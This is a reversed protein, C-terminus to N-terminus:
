GDGGCTYSGCICGCVDVDVPLVPVGPVFGAISGGGCRYSIESCRCVDVDVPLLLVGSVFGAFSEGGLDVPTDISCAEVVAASISCCGTASPSGAGGAAPLSM